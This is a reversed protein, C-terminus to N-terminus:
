DDWCELDVSEFERTLTRNEIAAAQYGEVLLKEMEEKDKQEIKQGVAETIFWNRKRPETMRNKAEVM